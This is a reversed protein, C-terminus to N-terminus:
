ECMGIFTMEDNLTFHYFVIISCIRIYASEDKCVIAKYM